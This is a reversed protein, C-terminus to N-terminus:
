FNGHGPHQDSLISILKRELKAEDEPRCDSWSSAEAFLKDWLFLIVLTKKKTDKISVLISKKFLSVSHSNPM